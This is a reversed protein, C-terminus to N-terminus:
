PPTIYKRCFQANQKLANLVKSDEPGCIRICERFLKRAFPFLERFERYSITREKRLINMALMVPRWAKRGYAELSMVVAEPKSLPLFGREPLTVYLMRSIVRALLDGGLHGMCRGNKYCFGDTGHERQIERKLDVASHYYQWVIWRTFAELAYERTPWKPYPRSLLKKFWGDDWIVVGHRAAHTLPSSLEFLHEIQREDFPVVQIAVPNGVDRSWHFALEFDFLIKSLYRKKEGRGLLVLFDADSYRRAQGLAYSGFLILSHIWKRYSDLFAKIEQIAWLSQESDPGFRNLATGRHGASKGKESGNIVKKGSFSM